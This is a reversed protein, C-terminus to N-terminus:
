TLSLIISCRSPSYPIHDWTCVQNLITSTNSGPYFWFTVGLILYLGVFLGANILTIWLFAALSYQCMLIMGELGTALYTLSPHEYQYYFWASLKIQRRSCCLKSHSSCFPCDMLKNCHSPAWVRLGSLFLVVSELPDFLLTLPKGLIWALTIIFPIVFLAIQQFQCRLKARPVGFVSM